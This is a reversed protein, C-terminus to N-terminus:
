ETAALQAKRDDILKQLRQQNAPYNFLYALYNRVDENTLIEPEQLFEELMQARTMLRNNYAEKELERRQEKLHKRKEEAKQLEAENREMARQLRQEATMKPKTKMTM